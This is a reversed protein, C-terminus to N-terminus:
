MEKGSVQCEMGCEADGVDEVLKIVSQANKGEVSGSPAELQQLVCAGGNRGIVIFRRGKVKVGGAAMSCPDNDARVALPDEACVAAVVRHDGKCNISVLTRHCWWRRLAKCQRLASQRPVTIKDCWVLQCHRCLHSCCLRATARPTSETASPQQETGSM